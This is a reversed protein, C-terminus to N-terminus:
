GANADEWGGFLGQTIECTAINYGGSAQGVSVAKGNVRIVCSVAGDGQLQASIAYYAPAKDPINVTTSM